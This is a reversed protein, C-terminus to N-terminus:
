IDSLSYSTQRYDKPSNWIKGLANQRIEPTSTIWIWSYNLGKEALRRLLNRKLEGTDIEIFYRYSRFKVWDKECQVSNRYAVHREIRSILGKANSKSLSQRNREREYMGWYWSEGSCIAFVADPHIAGRRLSGTMLKLRDGLAASLTTFTASVEADHQASSSRIEAIHRGHVIESGKKSLGYAYRWGVRGRMNAFFVEKRSLYRLEYLAGLEYNVNRYSTGVHKLAERPTLVPYTRFLELLQLRRPTLVDRIM